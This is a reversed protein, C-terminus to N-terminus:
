IGLVKLAKEITSATANEVYKNLKLPKMLMKVSM